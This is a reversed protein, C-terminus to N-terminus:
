HSGGPRRNPARFELIQQVKQMLHNREDPRMERLRDSVYQEIAEWNSGHLAVAENCLDALLEISGQPTDRKGDSM